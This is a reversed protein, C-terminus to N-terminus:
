IGRVNCKKFINIKNVWLKNVYSELARKDKIKRQIEEQTKNEPKYKSLVRKKQKKANELAELGIKMVLSACKGKMVSDETVNELTLTEIINTIIDAAQDRKGKDWCPHGDSYIHPHAFQEGIKVQYFRCQSQQIPNIKVDSGRMYFTSRPIQVLVKGVKNTNYMPNINNGDESNSTKLTNTDFIPYGEFEMIINNGDESNSTKFSKIGIINAVIGTAISALEMSYDKAM